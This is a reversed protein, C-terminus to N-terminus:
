LGVYMFCAHCPMAQRAIPAHSAAASHLAHAPFARSPPIRVTRLVPLRTAGSGCNGAPDHGLRLDGM